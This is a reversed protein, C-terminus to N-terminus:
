AGIAVPTGLPLLRALYTIARNSVRICGHSVDSGLGSPADTGHIGIEGIGGGFNHLVNSYASLGFAYPGYIGTPNTQALLMVVFFRGIPTPTARTGVGAATRYVIHTGNWVTLTHGSLSVGVRYPDRALSVDADRVWGTIGNPRVPLYVQNWGAKRSKVLFTTPWGGAAM